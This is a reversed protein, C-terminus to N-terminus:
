LPTLALMLELVLLFLVPECGDKTGKCHQRTGAQARTCLSRPSSKNTGM